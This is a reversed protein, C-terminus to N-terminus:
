TGVEHVRLYGQAPEYMDLIMDSITQLRGAITQLDDGGVGLVPDTSEFAISPGVVAQQTGYRIGVFLNADDDCRLLRSFRGTTATLHALTRTMRNSVSYLGVYGPSRGEELLDLLPTELRQLIEEVPPM